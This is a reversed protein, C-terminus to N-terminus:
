THTHTHKHIHKSKHIMFMTLKKHKINLKLNFDKGIYHIHSNHLRPLSNRSTAFTCM